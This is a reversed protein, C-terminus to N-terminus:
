LQTTMQRFARHARMYQQGFPYCLLVGQNRDHGMPAHYVGYLPSTSSGFYMPTM